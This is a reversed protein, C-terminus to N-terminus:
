VHQSRGEQHVKGVLCLWRTQLPSGQPRGGARPSLISAMLRAVVLTAGVCLGNGRGSGNRNAFNTLTFVTNKINKRL